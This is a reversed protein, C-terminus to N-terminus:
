PSASAVRPTVVMRGWSRQLTSLTSYLFGIDSPMVERLNVRRSSLEWASFAYTDQTGAGNVSSAMQGLTDSINERGIQM